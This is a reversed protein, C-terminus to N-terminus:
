KGEIIRQLVQRATDNDHAVLNTKVNVDVRTQDDTVRTLNVDVDKDGLKGHLARHESSNMDEVSSIQISMGEMATRAQSVAQDLSGNVSGQVGANSMYTAGAAGAGAAAAAVCGGTGLAALTGLTGLAALAMRLAGTARRTGNRNRM